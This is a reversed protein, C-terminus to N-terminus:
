NIFKNCFEWLEAVGKTIDQAGTNGAWALLPGMDVAPRPWDETSHQDDPLSTTVGTRETTVVSITRLNNRVETTVAVQKGLIFWQSIIVEETEANDRYASVSSFLNTM